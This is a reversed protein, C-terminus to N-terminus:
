LSYDEEQEVSSNNLAKNCFAKFVGDTRDFGIQNGKITKPRLGEVFDTYDYSQHFQVFGCQEEFQKQENESLEKKSDGFILSKAIEKALYTKGTGPAGHLIINYNRDLLTKLEEIKEDKLKEKSTERGANKAKVSKQAPPRKPEIHKREDM